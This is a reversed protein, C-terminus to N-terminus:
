ECYVGEARKIWSNPSPLYELPVFYAPQYHGIRRTTDSSSWYLKGKGDWSIASTMQLHTSDIIKYRRETISWKFLHTYYGANLISQTIIEDGQLKYIGWYGLNQLEESSAKQVLYKAYDNVGLGEGGVINEVYTGDKFFIFVFDFSDVVRRQTYYGEIRIPVEIQKNSYCNTFHKRIGKPLKMAYGGYPLFLIGLIVSLTKYKFVM